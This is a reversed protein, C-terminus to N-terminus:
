IHSCPLSTGCQHGGPKKKPKGDSQTGEFNAQGWREESFIPKDKDWKTGSIYKSWIINNLLKLCKADIKEKIKFVVSERKM